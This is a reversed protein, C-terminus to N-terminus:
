GNPVRDSEEDGLTLQPSVPTSANVYQGTRTVELFLSRSASWSLRPFQWVLRLMTQLHDRTDFVRSSDNIMGNDLM